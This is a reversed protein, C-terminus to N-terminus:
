AISPLSVLFFSVLVAGLWVKWDWAFVKSGDLPFFPILNFLALWANVMAGISFVRALQLPMDLFLLPLLFLACLAWNAAPGALSIIGNEKVSIPRMAYIYVAGPAIFFIGAGPGWILQPVIVMALALALGAPWAVFRARAGYKIAYYKHSLEHLVFGSGLTIVAAAMYFLFTSPELKLGIQYFTFVLAIALVSVAIDFAEQRGIKMRDMNM